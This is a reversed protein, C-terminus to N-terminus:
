GDREQAGLLRAVAAVLEGVRFPKALFLWRRGELEARPLRDATYGSVFIVPLDPQEAWMARALDVGSMGPMVVDTVLVSPPSQAAHRMATAGDPATACPIGAEQLALHMLSLLAHEDDVVLVAGRGVGDGPSAEARSPAPPAAPLVVRVRTGRGPASDLTVAGGAATVIGHVVALGLGTGAGVEKTTFFPDFARATVEPTMGPGDDIVEIVVADGVRRAAVEVAGHGNLAEFANLVVNALLQDLHVPPIEVPPLEPEISRRLDVGHGHTRRLLEPVRDVAERVDVREPRALDKGGYIMLARTLEASSRAADLVAELDAAGRADRDRLRRHVLETYNLIVALKNNFEHAMGGALRGVTEYRQARLLEAELGRREEAARREADIRARLEYQRARARTAVRIAGLLTSIRMPRDLIAVNGLHRVAWSVVPNVAPARAILLVPVDSWPPQDRLREAVVRRQADETVADEAIVIADIDDLRAAALDDRSRAAAADIGNDALIRVLAAGERGDAVLALVRPRESM